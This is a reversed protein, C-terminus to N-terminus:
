LLHILRSFLSDLIHVRRSVVQDTYRPPLNQEKEIEVIAAHIEEYQAHSQKYAKTHPVILEAIKRIPNFM